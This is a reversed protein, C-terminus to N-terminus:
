IKFSAQIDGPLASSPFARCASPLAQASSRFGGCTRGVCHNWFATCPQPDWPILFPSVTLGSVSCAASPRTLWVVCALHLREGPGTRLPSCDLSTPGVPRPYTHAGRPRTPRWQVSPWTEAMVGPLCPNAPSQRCVPVHGHCSQSPGPRIREDILCM